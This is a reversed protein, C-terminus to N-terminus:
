LMEDVLNQAEERIHPAQRYFPLHVPPASPDTEVRHHHIDTNRLNQLSTSFVDKNRKLFELLESRESESLSDNSVNFKIDCNTDNSKSESTASVTPSQFESQSDLTHVNNVDIDCVHAVVRHGPIYFDSKIPNLLRLPVRGRKM